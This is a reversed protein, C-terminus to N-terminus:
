KNKRFFGGFFATKEDKHLHIERIRGAFGEGGSKPENM